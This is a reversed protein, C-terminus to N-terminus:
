STRATSCSRAPSWRAAPHCCGLMALATTTKGSGSEGVLGITEGRRLDFSVDNVGRLPGSPSDFEVSLNRVSLLPSCQRRPRTPLEIVPAPAGWPRRRDRELHHRKLRPNLVDELATGLLTTALVVWVIALGPPVLGM